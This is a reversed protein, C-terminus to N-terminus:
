YSATSTCSCLCNDCFHIWTVTVPRSQVPQMGTDKGGYPRVSLLLYLGFRGRVRMSSLACDYLKRERAKEVRTFEDLVVYDDLNIVYSRETDSQM